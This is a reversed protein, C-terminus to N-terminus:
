RAEFSHIVEYSQSATENILSVLEIRDVLIEYSSNIREIKKKLHLYQQKSPLKSHALTLMPVYTEDINNEKEASCHEAMRDRVTQLAKNKHFVGLLILQGDKQLFKFREFFVATRDLDYVSQEVAEKILELKSDSFNGLIAVPILLNKDEEWEFIPYRLKFKSFDNRIESLVNEQPRIVLFLKM